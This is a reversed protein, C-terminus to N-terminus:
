LKTESIEGHKKPFQMMLNNAYLSNYWEEDNWLKITRNRCREKQSIADNRNSM